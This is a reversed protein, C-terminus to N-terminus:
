RTEEMRARLATESMNPNITETAELAIAGAAVGARASEELNLGNQWAWLLAASFADGGGTTSRPQVKLCPLRVMTHADAALVGDSGLSLFVRRMGLSLLARAADTPDACGTLSAAELRNPKFTHLKGLVGRVKEAKVTSVPDCFLPATCNECLYRIAEEPLNTDFCVAEAANLMPLAPALRAPTLEDCIAMDAVALQMEGNEDAIYLYTSSRCDSLVAAGDTGIGLARCSDLLKQANLDGGFATVLQVDLGLLRANHAINRGVGGLSLTVAGPNSDQAVLPANSRAGIDINAGGVVAVYPKTNTM